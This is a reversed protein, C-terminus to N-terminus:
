FRASRIAEDSMRSQRIYQALAHMIMQMVDEALGYNGTPIHIVIDALEAAKGGDMAVVAISTINSEKACQLARIINASNGSVSFAIFVDGINGQRELQYSFISDYGIDNAIATILPVNATLSRFNTYWSRDEALHKTHDCEFHDSLAAAGGNGAIFVLSGDNAAKIIQDGAHAIDSARINATITRIEDTYHVWFGIMGSYSMTPFESQPMGTIREIIYGAAVGLSTFSKYSAPKPGLPKRIPTSGVHVAHAGVRGALTMDEWRDGVVYSKHLDLNLVVKARIAMGPSPKHYYCEDTYGKVNGDPHEACYLILDVHAGHLALERRIYDHVIHVDGETFFGRAVGSKNTIIAVPIGHQNFRRIAEISGPIFQVREVHGVYHYDVIITGDCDLLIGPRPATSM